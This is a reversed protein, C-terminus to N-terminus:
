CYFMTKTIKKLFGLSLKKLKFKLFTITKKPHGKLKKPHGKLKLLMSIQNIIMLIIWIEANKICM